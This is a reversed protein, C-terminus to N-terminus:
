DLPLSRCKVGALKLDTEGVTSVEIVRGGQRWVFLCNGLGTGSCEGSRSVEQLDRGARHQM